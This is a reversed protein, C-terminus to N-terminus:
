RDHEAGVNLVTAAHPILNALRDAGGFGYERRDVKHTSEIWAALGAVRRLAADLARRRTWETAGAWVMDVDDAILIVAALAEIAGRPPLYSLADAFTDAAQDAREARIESGNEDLLNFTGAARKRQDLLLLGTTSSSPIIAWGGEGGIPREPQAPSPASRKVATKTSKNRSTAKRM